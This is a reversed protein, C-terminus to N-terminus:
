YADRNIDRILREYDEPTDIDEIVAPDDVPVAVVEGEHAHV